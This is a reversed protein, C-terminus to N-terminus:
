LLLFISHGNLFLYRIEKKLAEVQSELSQIKAQSTDIAKDKFITLARSKYQRYEEKVDALQDEAAKLKRKLEEITVLSSQSVEALEVKLQEIQTQNENLVSIHRQKDDLTAGMESEIQEIKAELKIILEKKEQIVATSKTLMGKM